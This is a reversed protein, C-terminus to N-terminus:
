LPVLPRIRGTPSHAGPADGTDPQTSGDAGVGPILRRPMGIRFTNMGVVMFDRAGSFKLNEMGTHLCPIQRIEDPHWEYPDEIEFEVRATDDGAARNEERAQTSNDITVFLYDIGGLANEGTGRASREQSSGATHTLPEGGGCAYPHGPLHRNLLEFAQHIPDLTFRQVTQNSVGSEKLQAVVQEHKDGPV